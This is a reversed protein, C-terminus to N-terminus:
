FLNVTFGKREGTAEDEVILSIANSDVNRAAILTVDGLNDNLLAVVIDVLDSKTKM